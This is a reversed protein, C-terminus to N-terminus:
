FELKKSRTQRARGNGKPYGEVVASQIADLPTDLYPITRGPMSYMLGNIRGQTMPGESVAAGVTGRIIKDAWSIGPSLGTLGLNRNYYNKTGENLGLLRSLNGDSLNDGGGLLEPGLGLLGSAEITERVHDQFAMKDWEKEFEDVDYGVRGLMRAQYILWAMGFEATLYRATRLDGRALRQAIPIIVKGQMNFFVNRYMTFMKGVPNDLIRPLAGASHGVITLEGYIGMANAYRWAFQQDPWQDLNAFYVGEVESILGQDYMEKIRYFDKRSIGLKGFTSIQTAYEATGKVAAQNGLSFRVMQDGITNGAATKGVMNFLNQGNYQYMAPAVKGRGWGKWGRGIGPDQVEGRMMAVNHHSRLDMSLNYAHQMEIIPKTLNREFALVGAVRAVPTFGNVMMITVPEHLSAVASNGLHAGSAYGRLEALFEAVPGTMVISEEGIGSIKTLLHSMDKLYIEHNKLMRLAKKDGAKQAKAAAQRDGQEKLKNVRRETAALIRQHKYEFEAKQEKTILPVDYGKVTRTVEGYRERLIIEPLLTRVMVDHDNVLDRILFEEVFHDDFKLTIGKLHAPVTIGSGFDAGWQGTKSATAIDYYADMARKEMAAATMNMTEPESRLGAKVAAVWRRTGDVGRMMEINYIRPGYHKNTRKGAAKVAADLQETEKELKKEFSSMKKQAAAVEARKMEIGVKEGATELTDLESEAKALSKDLGKQQKTLKKLQVEKAKTARIVPNVYMGVAELRNQFEERWKRAQQIIPMLEAHRATDDGYAVARSSMESIEHRNFVEGSSAKIEKKALKMAHVTNGLGQQQSHVLYDLPQYMEDMYYPPAYMVKDPGLITLEAGYKSPVALGETPAYALRIAPSKVMIHRIGLSKQPMHLGTMEDWIQEQTKMAASTSGADMEARVQEPTGEFVRKNKGTGIEVRTIGYKAYEKDAIVEMDKVLKTKVASPLGKSLAGSFLAGLTTAAAAGIFLSKAMENPDRSRDIHKMVAERGAMEAETWGALRGIKGLTSATRFGPGFPVFWMPLAAPEIFAFTGAEFKGDVGSNAVTMMDREADDYDRMYQRAKAESGANAIDDWIPRYRPELTKPDPNYDPDEPPDPLVTDAAWDLLGGTFSTNWIAKRREATTPKEPKDYILQDEATLPDTIRRPRFSVGM